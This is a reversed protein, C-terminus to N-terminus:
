LPIGHSTAFNRNVQEAGSKQNRNGSGASAGEATIHGRVEGSGVHDDLGLSAVVDDHEDSASVVHVGTGVLEAIM